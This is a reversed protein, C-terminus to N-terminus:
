LNKLARKASSLAQKVQRVGEQADPAEQSRAVQVVTPLRTGALSVFRDVANSLSEALPIVRDGADHALAEMFKGLEEASKKSAEKIEDPDLRTLAKLAGAASAITTTIAPNTPSVEARKATQDAQTLLELARTIQGDEVASTVDKIWGALETLNAEDNVCALKSIVGEDDAYESLLLSHFYGSPCGDGLIFLSARPDKALQKM